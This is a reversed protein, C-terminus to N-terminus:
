LVKENKDFNLADGKSQLFLVETKGLNAESMKYSGLKLAMPDIDIGIMKKPHYDLCAMLTQGSGCGVDLIFSNENIVMKSLIEKVADGSLQIDYEKLNYIITNLERSLVLQDAKENVLNEKIFFDLKAKYQNSSGSGRDARCYIDDFIRKLEPDSIIMSFIEEWKEEVNIGFRKM